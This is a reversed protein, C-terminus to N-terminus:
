VMAEALRETFEPGFAKELLHREPERELLIKLIYDRRSAIQRAEEPSNEKEEEWIRLWLDLYADVLAYVKDEHQTDVASMFFYPSASVRTWSGDPLKWDFYPAKKEKLYIETLQEYYRDIYDQRIVLDMDPYLDVDFQIKEPMLMYNVSFRPICYSPSPKLSANIYNMGPAISLEIISFKYLKEGTFAKFGGAQRGDPTKITRLDDFETVPSLDIKQSVKEYIRDSLKKAAM